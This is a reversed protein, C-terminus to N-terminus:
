PIHLSSTLAPAPESPAPEPEAPAPTGFDPFDPLDELRVAGGNVEAERAQTYVSRITVYPDISTENVNKIVPDLEARTDLGDVVTLTLDVEDKHRYQAWNLPDLVLDVGAGVLDRVSSPGLVPIFLYPGADIHARGMTVGFDNEHREWGAHKAVDFLGLVGVTTNTVFRLAAVGARPLRGQLVDNVLVRPEDLNSIFNRVGSRVPSPLAHKYAMAAPRLAVRDIFNHAGYLDRNVGEWPDERDASAPALPTDAAAAPTPATQEAPAIQCIYAPRVFEADAILM